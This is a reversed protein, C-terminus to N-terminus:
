PYFSIRFLFSSYIVDFEYTCQSSYTKILAETLDMNRLMDTGEFSKSMEITRPHPIEVFFDLSPLPFKSSVGQFGLSLTDNGLVFSRRDMNVGTVGLGTM